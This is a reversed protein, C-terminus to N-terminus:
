NEFGKEEEAPSAGGYQMWRCILLHNSPFSMPALTPSERTMDVQIQEM